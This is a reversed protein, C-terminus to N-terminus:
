LRKNKKVLKPYDGIKKYIKEAEVKTKKIV